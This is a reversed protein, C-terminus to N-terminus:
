KTMWISRLANEWSLYEEYKIEQEQIDFPPSPIEFTAGEENFVNLFEKIDMGEIKAIIDKVSEYDYHTKIGKIYNERLLFDKKTFYDSQSQSLLTKWREKVNYQEMRQTFGKIPKLANEEITGMGFQGRTYGLEQGRSKMPTEQIEKLRQKRKRNIIGVKRNIEKRQWTTVKVNYDTGPVEEIGKFTGDDLLKIENKRDTFRKLANIERNLDQRTNILEKYQAVTIKEPLVNKIQPYKKSLRTIKRNFNNVAKSLEQLDSDRWNIRHYKPM